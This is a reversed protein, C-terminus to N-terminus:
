INGIADELNSIRGELEEIENELREITSDKKIINDDNEVEELEEQLPELDAELEALRDELRDKIISMVYENMDNRYTFFAQSEIAKTPELGEWLGSDTEVNDSQEIINASEILGVYIFDSDVWEHLRYDNVFEYLDNVGDEEVDTFIEDIYQDVFNSAEEQVKDYYNEFDAM